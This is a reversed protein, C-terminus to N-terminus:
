VDYIAEYTGGSMVVNTSYKIPTPDTGYYSSLRPVLGGELRGSYNWVLNDNVYVECTEINPLYLGCRVYARSGTEGEAM